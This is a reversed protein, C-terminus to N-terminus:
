SMLIGTFQSKPPEPANSLDFGDEVMAELQSVTTSTVPRPAVIIPSSSHPPSPLGNAQSPQRSPLSSSSVAQTARREASVPAQPARLEVEDDDVAAKRKSGSPASTYTWQKFDAPLTSSL